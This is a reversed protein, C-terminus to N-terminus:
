SVQPASSRSIPTWPLRRARPLGGLLMWPHKEKRPNPHPDQWILVTLFGVKIKLDGGVNNTADVDAHGEEVLYKAVDLHGNSAALHLPTWGHQM